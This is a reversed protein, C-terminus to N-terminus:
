SHISGGSVPHILRLTETNMHRPCLTYGGAVDGPVKAFATAFRGCKPGQCRTPDVWKGANLRFHDIEWEWNHQAAEEPTDHGPCPEYKGRKGSSGCDICVVNPSEESKGGCGPCAEEGVKSLCGGSAWVKKDRMNTWRWKGADPSNSKPDVQRPQEYNV